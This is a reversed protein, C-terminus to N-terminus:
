KVGFSRIICVMAVTDMLIWPIDWDVAAPTPAKHIMATILVCTPVWHVSM